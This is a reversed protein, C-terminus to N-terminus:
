GRAGEVITELVWRSADRETLGGVEGRVFAVLIVGDDLECLSGSVPLGFPDFGVDTEATYVCTATNWTSGGGEVSPVGALFGGGILVFGASTLAHTDRSEVPRMAIIGVGSGRPGVFTVSRIEAMPELDVDLPEWWRTPVTPRWGSEFAKATPLYPQATCASVAEPLVLVSLAVALLIM